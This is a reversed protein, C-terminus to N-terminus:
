GIAFWDRWTPSTGQITLQRQTAEDVNPTVHRGFVTVTKTGPTEFLLTTEHEIFKRLAACVYGAPIFTRDFPRLEVADNTTAVGMSSATECGGGFTMLVIDFPESARITDPVELIDGDWTDEYIIGPRIVDLDPAADPVDAANGACGSVAITLLLARMM